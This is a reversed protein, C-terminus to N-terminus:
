KQAYNGDVVEAEVITFTPCIWDEHVVFQMVPVKKSAISNWPILKNISRFSLILNCTNVKGDVCNM